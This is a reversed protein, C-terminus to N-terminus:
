DSDEAAHNKIEVLHLSVRDLQGIIPIVFKPDLDREGMLGKVVNVLVPSAGASSLISLIRLALKEAGPPFHRLLDLLKPTAGLSQILPTLLSELADQIEPIMRTYAKFIHDLLDQQRRSLAFILEVHQRVTDPTVEALFRSQVSSTEPKSETEAAAVTGTTTNTNTEVRTEESHEMKVDESGDTIEVTKATTLRELVNVGYGIVEESMPSGPVWRKVTSIAMVRLKLEPHTCLQLLIDLSQRRIPPRSEAFARLALFGVISREVDLCLGELIEITPINIEPLTSLFAGLAKDKSDVKPLYSAVVADLNTSYHSVQGLKGNYWEENLWVTAFKSRYCDTGAERSWAPSCSLSVAHRFRRRRLCLADESRDGWGSHCSSGVIADLDGEAPSCDQYRGFSAPRTSWCSRERIDM